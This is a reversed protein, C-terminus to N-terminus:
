CPEGEGAGQDAALGHRGLKDLAVKSPDGGTFKQILRMRSVPLYLKDRGAYELVLFDGPVGHVQM